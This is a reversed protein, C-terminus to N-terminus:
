CPNSVSYIYSIVINNNGMPVGIAWKSLDAYTIVKECGSGDLNTKRIGVRKIEDFRSNKMGIHNWFSKGASYSADVDIFLLQDKRFVEELHLILSAILLRSLGLNRLEFKYENEVFINMMLTFGNVNITFYGIEQENEDELIFSHSQLGKKYLLKFNHKEVIKFSKLLKRKQVTDKLLSINMKKVTIKQIKRIKKFLFFCNKNKIKKIKIKM